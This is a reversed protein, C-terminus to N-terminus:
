NRHHEGRASAAGALGGGTLRACLGGAHGRHTLVDQMAASTRGLGVAAMDPIADRQESTLEGVGM